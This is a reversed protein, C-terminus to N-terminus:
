EVREGDLGLKLATEVPMYERLDESYIREEALDFYFINGRKLFFMENDMKTVRFKLRM